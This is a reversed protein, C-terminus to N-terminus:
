HAAANGASGAVTQGAMYASCPGALEAELKAKINADKAQRRARDFEQDGRDIIVDLRTGEEAKIYSAFPTADSGLGVALGKCRNARLFDVDTAHSAASASGALTALGVAALAIATFKM